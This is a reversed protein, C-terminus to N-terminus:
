HAQIGSLPIAHMFAHHLAVNRHGKGICSRPTCPIYKSRVYYWRQYYSYIPRWTPCNLAGLCRLAASVKLHSSEEVMGQVAWTGHSMNIPPLETTAVSPLM